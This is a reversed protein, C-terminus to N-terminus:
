TRMSGNWCSRSSLERRQDLVCGVFSRDPEGVLADFSEVGLRGRGRADGSARRTEVSAPVTTQETTVAREGIPRAEDVVAFVRAGKAADRRSRVNPPAVRKKWADLQTSSIGCDRHLAGQTVGQRLAALAAARLEAPVRAGRERDARFEEDAAAWAKVKDFAHPTRDFLHFCLTDTIAWNDFDRCWRDM